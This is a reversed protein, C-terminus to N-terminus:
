DTLQAKWLQMAKAPDDGAMDLFRDIEEQTPQRAPRRRAPQSAPSPAAPRSASQNAQPGLWFDTMVDPPILPPGQRAPQSSAPQSTAAPRSAPVPQGGPRKARMAASRAEVARKYAARADDLDQLAAQYAPDEKNPVLGSVTRNATTLQFMADKVEQNAVDLESIPKEAKAQGVNRALAGYYDGHARTMKTQAERADIESQLNRREIDTPERLRNALLVQAIQGTPLQGAALPNLASLISSHRGVNFQEIGQTINQGVDGGQQLAQLIISSMAQGARQQQAQQIGGLLASLGGALDQMRTDQPLTGLYPM